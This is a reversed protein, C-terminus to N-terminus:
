FQRWLDIFSKNTADIESAFGAVDNLPRTVVIFDSKSILEASSNCVVYSDTLPTIEHNAGEDDWVAIKFERSALARALALGPSEETVKTGTKYSLGAIGVTM